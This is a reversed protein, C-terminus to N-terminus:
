RGIEIEKFCFQVIKKVFKVKYNGNETVEGTFGM